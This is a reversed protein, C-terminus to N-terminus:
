IHIYAHISEETSSHIYTNKNVCLINRLIRELASSTDFRRIMHRINTRGLCGIYTHAYIRKMYTCASTHTYIYKHTRIGNDQRVEEEWTVDFPLLIVFGSNSSFRLTSEDDIHLLTPFLSLCVASVTILLPRVNQQRKMTKRGKQWKHKKNEKM